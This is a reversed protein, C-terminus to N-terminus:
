DEILRAMKQWGITPVSGFKRAVSVTKKEDSIGDLTFEWQLGLLQGLNNLYEKTEESMPPTNAVYIGMERIRKTAEYLLRAMDEKAKNDNMDASACLDAILGQDMICDYSVFNLEDSSSNDNEGEGLKNTNDFVAALFSCSSDESKQIASSNETSAAAELADNEAAGAIPAVAASDTNAAVEQDQDEVVAIEDTPGQYQNGVVLVNLEDTMPPVFDSLGNRVFSDHWALNWMSQTNVYTYMASYDRIKQRQTMMHFNFLADDNYAKKIAGGGGKNTEAYLTVAGSTPLRHCTAATTTTFASASRAMFVLALFVAGSRKRAMTVFAVSREINSLIMM